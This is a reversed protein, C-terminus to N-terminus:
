SRSGHRALSVHHEIGEAAAAHAGHMRHPIALEVPLDRELEHARLATVRTLLRPEARPWAM